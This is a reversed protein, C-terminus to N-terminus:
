ERPAVTWTGTGVQDSDAAEPDDPLIPACSWEGTYTFSGTGEGTVVELELWFPMADDPQEGVARLAVGEATEAMTADGAIFASFEFMLEDDVFTRRFV